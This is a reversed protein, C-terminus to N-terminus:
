CECEPNITLIWLCSFSCPVKEYNGGGTLESPLPISSRSPFLSTTLLWLSLSYETSSIPAGISFFYQILVDLHFVLWLWRSGTSCPWCVRIQVYGQRCSPNPPRSDICYSFLWQCWQTAWVQGHQRILHNSWVDKIFYSDCLSRSWAQRQCRFGRLDVVVIENVEFRNKKKWTCTCTSSASITRTFRREKAGHAMIDQLVRSSMYFCDARAFDSKIISHVAPGWLAAKNHSLLKRLWDSICFTLKGWASDKVAEVRVAILICWGKGSLLGLAFCLATARASVHFM